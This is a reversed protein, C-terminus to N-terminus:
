AVEQELVRTKNDGLWHPLATYEFKTHTLKQCMKSVNSIKNGKCLQINRRQIKHRQINKLQINQTLYKTTPYETPIGAQADATM